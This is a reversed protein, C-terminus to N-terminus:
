YTTLLYNEREKCTAGRPAKVGTMMPQNCFREGDESRGGEKLGRLQCASGEKNFNRSSVSFGREQFAKSFRQGRSASVSQRFAAVTTASSPLAQLGGSTPLTNFTRASLSMWRWGGYRAFQM